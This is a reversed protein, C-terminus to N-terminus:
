LIPSPIKHLPLHDLSTAIISRYEQIRTKSQVNLPLVVACVIYALCLETKDKKLRSPHIVIKIVVIIFLLLDKISKTCALHNNGVHYLLLMYCPSGQRRPAIFEWCSHCSHYHCCRNQRAPSYMCQLILSFSYM